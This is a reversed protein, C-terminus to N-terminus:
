PQAPPKLVWVATARQPTNINHTFAVLQGDTTTAMHQIDGDLQSLSYVKAPRYNAYDPGDAVLHLLGDVTNVLVSGPANSLLVSRQRDFGPITLTQVIKGNRWLNFKGVTTVIGEGLWVTGSRDILQPWGSNKVEDAVGAATLRIALQGSLSDGSGFRPVSNSYIHSGIWLGGAPDRLSIVRTYPYAPLPAPSFSLEGDKVEGILSTGGESRSQLDTLYIKQGDDIPALYRVECKRSGAALLGEISEHWRDGVLVHLTQRATCWLNGQADAALSVDLAKRDTSRRPGFARALLQHHQKLVQLLSGRGFEKEGQFLLVLGNCDILMVGESGPLFYRANPELPTRLKVWQAGNWRLLNGQPDLVWISGDDGVEFGSNNLSRTDQKVGTLTPAEAGGPTYVMLSTNGVGGQNSSAFVRGQASLAQLQVPQAAPLRDVFKGTAFDLLVPSSGAYRGPIWMQEGSATLIPTPAIDGLKRCALPIQDGAIVRTKGATDLILLGAVTESNAQKIGEAAVYIRGQSDQLLAQVKSVQADGFTVSDATALETAQGGEDIKFRVLKNNILVAWGERSDALVLQTVHPQDESFCPCKQWKDGHYVWLDRTRNPHAVATKGDPSVALAPRHQFGYNLSEAITQHRWERGDFTIIQMNAIFWAKGGAFRNTQGDFLAGQTMARGVLNDNLDRGSDGVFEKGDYGILRRTLPNYFWTRGNPEFLAYQGLSMQPMDRAFEAVIQERLKEDLAPRLEPPTGSTAPPLTRQFCLKGAPNVFAGVLGPPLGQWRAEPLKLEGPNEQALTAACLSGLGIVIALFTRPMPNREHPKWGGRGTTAAIPNLTQTAPQIAQHTNTTEQCM